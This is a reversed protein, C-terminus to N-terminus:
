VEVTEKKKTSSIPLEDMAKINDDFYTVANYMNIFGHQIPMDAKVCSDFLIHKIQENNLNPYQTKIMACTATVFPAACSTGSFDKYKGLGYSDSLRINESPAAVNVWDGYTSTESLVGDKTIGTVSVVNKCAAPYHPLNSKFNGASAIHLPKQIRSEFEYLMGFSSNVIDVGDLEAQIEALRLISLATDRESFIKYSILKVNELTNEILISCVEAGHGDMCIDCDESDDVFSHTALVRNKFMPNNIDIGSDIVGVVIQPLEDITKNQLIYNFAKETEIYDFGWSNGNNIEYLSLKPQHFLASNILEIVRDPEVYLIDPNQIYKLYARCTDNCNAYQLLYINDFGFIYDIAGYKDIESNSIVLLRCASFDKQLINLGPTSQSKYHKIFEFVEKSFLKLKTTKQTKQMQGM